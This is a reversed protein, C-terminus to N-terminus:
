PSTATGPVTSTSSTSSTDTTGSSSSTSSTPRKAAATKRPPVATTTTSKLLNQFSRTENDFSPKAKTLTVVDAVVLGAVVVLALALVVLRRTRGPGPM